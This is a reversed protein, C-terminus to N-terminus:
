AMFILNNTEDVGERAQGGDGDWGGHLKEDANKISFKFILFM